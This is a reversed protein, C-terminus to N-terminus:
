AYNTLKELRRLLPKQWEEALESVELIKKIGEIDKPRHFFIQNAFDISIQKPHPKILTIESDHRVMGENIVRCLYGTYGTEVMRKLLVENSTRKNIIHCPVRGQTIQIVAEGIQFVDGIFVNQELMNAVLLNEGFASSPLPSGFEKEWFSYHEYSYVCVARDPGGHFRLDAVDDGIFGQKELFAEEVTEKCIATVVEKDEGYKMKKPLGISFNKIEGRVNRNM